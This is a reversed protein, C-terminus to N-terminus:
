EVADKRAVQMAVLGSRLAELQADNCCECACLALRRFEEGSFDLPVAPGALPGLSTDEQYRAHAGQTGAESFRILLEYDAPM